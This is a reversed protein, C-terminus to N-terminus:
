MDAPTQLPSHVPRRSREVFAAQGEVAFRKLLAYGAKPTINFRRCLERRNAGEQLALEVFEQKTSM